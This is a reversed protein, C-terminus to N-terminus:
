RNAYRLFDYIMVCKRFPSNKLLRRRATPNDETEVMAAKLVNELEDVDIDQDSLSPIFRFVRDLGCADVLGRVSLSGEFKRRTSAMHSRITKNRFSDISTVKPIYSAIYKGIEDADLNRIYKFVPMGWPNRKVFANLYNEVVFKSDYHLDDLVVDEFIDEPKIPRGVDSPSTAFGIVIKQDPALDNLVNDVGSMVISSSPDLREVLHFISGRMERIMRTDYMKRTALLASYISGFDDTEVRTMSLSKDGFAMTHDSVRTLTAHQVFIMRRKLRLLKDSPMCTAIESLIRRINEDQISYGLFIVPYEVFITLLKAALYKQREAFRGYDADTLVMSDPRDVSGHIKYVEQAYSQDALLLDQEGVYTKFSPFLQECMLDYNTTIVGSVQNLGARSLLETEENPKMRYSSVLDAVLAKMPSEGNLLSSEHHSRFDSFGDATLLIDNADGEILTAVYPLDPHDKSGHGQSIAKNVYRQYAFRDQGLEECIRKLLGDWNPSETYRRSLGSGIFLFPYRNADDVACRVVSQIQKDM